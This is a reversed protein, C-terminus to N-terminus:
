RTYSLPPRHFAGTAAESATAAKRAEIVVSGALASLRHFHVLLFSDVRELAPGFPVVRRARTLMRFPRFSANPFVDLVSRLDADTLKREDETIHREQSASNPFLWRVPAANRVRDFAPTYVPEKFIMHGNNGLVRQCSAIAKPIDVHHLIDVGIIVDFSGSSYPLEEAAASTFQVRGSLGEKEARAKAIEINEPTLDVGHVEFGVRAARIAVDGWGCGFDLLRRCGDEYHSLLRRHCYWYANWPRPPVTPDVPDFDVPAATYRRSYTSYFRRERAQRDTVM